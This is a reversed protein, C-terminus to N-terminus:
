IGADADNARATKFAEVKDKSIYELYANPSKESKRYEEKLLKFVLKGGVQMTRIADFHEPGIEISMFAGGNRTEWLPVITTNYDKKDKAM